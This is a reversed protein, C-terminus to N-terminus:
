SYRRERTGRRTFAVDHLGHLRGELADDTLAGIQPWDLGAAQAARLVTTGVVGHSIGLSQAIARHSRGLTLRQRLIERTHRMSLRETAM